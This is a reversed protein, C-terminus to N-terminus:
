FAKTISGNVSGWGRIKPPLTGTYTCGSLMLIASPDGSRIIGGTGTGDNFVENTITVINGVPTNRRSEFAYSLFNHDQANSPLTMSGNSISLQGGDPVDYASGDGGTRHHCGFSITHAARSKVEHAGNCNETRLNTLRFFNSGNGNVYLNHTQGSGSGNDHIYGGDIEIDSGFTLIGNQCGNIEVNSLKFGVGKGSDRVGAANGGRSEPISAGTISLNSITVGPVMAVLVGKDLYPVLGTADIITKGM